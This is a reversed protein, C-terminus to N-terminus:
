RVDVIEPKEYKRQGYNTGWMVWAIFAIAILCAIAAITEKDEEKM